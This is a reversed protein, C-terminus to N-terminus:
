RETEKNIRELFKQARDNPHISFENEQYQNKQEPQQDVYKIMETVVKAIDSYAETKSKGDFKVELIKSFEVNEGSIIDKICDLYGDAYSQAKISELNAKEISGSLSQLKKLIEQKM